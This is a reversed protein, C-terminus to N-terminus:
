EILKRNIYHAVTEKKMLEPLCIDKLSCSKCKASPKVKPTYKNKWYYHMENVVKDLKDRLDDTFLVKERHRTMGYYLYGYKLNCFLMEELCIGEALVQLRDSDDSKRKGHKYEVPVPIYKNEKGFIHIGKSNKQFEVVDCIGTLGYENSHIPMARVIFKHDRTESIYPDDVKKHMKNGSVTLYNESWQHEIHDLAWQRRCFVFHQIGSVMLYDENSYTM